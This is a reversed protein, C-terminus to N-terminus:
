GDDGGQQCNALLTQLNERGLKRTLEINRQPIGDPDPHNLTAQEISDERLLHLMPYPSRNTYNAADDPTEGNFCYKPHFSALQYTGQYDQLELLEEALALFELYDDFAQFQHPYILLTTEISDDMDLVICEEILNELCDSIDTHSVMHYRIRNEEWERRAFPCLNLGIVVSALWNKTASIIQHQDPEIM